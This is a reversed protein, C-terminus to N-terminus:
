GSYLHAPNYFTRQKTLAWFVHLLKTMLAGIAQMKTLANQRRHRFQHYLAKFAPDQRVLRLCSFYLSTRLYPNGKRSMPTKSHQHRGSRNPTPQIGALKVLQRANRFRNPDGIESQILATAVLGLGLSQLYPAQPQDLFTTVLADEIEALQKDKTDLEELCHRINMQLAIVDELAVSHQALKYAQRLKALHLKKGQFDERVAVIFAKETMQRILIASAHKKLMARVTKGTFAKFVQRLEPFTQGVAVYLLTRQRNVDKQLRRYHRGYERLEAYDDHLLKTKTFKGTRVLDAITFADRRDDKAWDLQDGERRKKVTYANVLHYPIKEHELYAALLKWYHSTPEMAVLKAPAQEQQQLQNLRKRFQEYGERTHNFTSHALRQGQQNIFMAENVDEALDVGVILSGPEIMALNEALNRSM